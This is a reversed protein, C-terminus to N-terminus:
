ALLSALASSVDAFIDFCEHLRALGLLTLSCPALCALVVRGGPPMRRKMALLATIGQADVLSVQGLDIVVSHVGQRFLVEADRVLQRAARGDLEHGRAEVQRVLPSVLIEM